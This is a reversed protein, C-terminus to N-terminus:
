RWNKSIEEIEDIKFNNTKIVVKIVYGYGSAYTSFTGMTWPIDYGTATKINDTGCGTGDVNFKKSFIESDFLENINLWATVSPFKLYIDFDVGILGTTTIRLTGNSNPKGEAWIRRFYEQNNTKNASYDVDINYTNFSNQAKILAGMYQQADNAQLLTNSDWSGYGNNVSIINDMDVATKKIRYEEDIFTEKLRTSNGTNPNTDILLKITQSIETGWGTVVKGSKANLKVNDVISNPAIYEIIHNTLTFVDNWAPVTESKLNSNTHNWELLGANSGNMTLSIPKDWYTYDFINTAMLNLSFKINNNYYPIGSVYKTNGSLLTFDMIQTTPLTNSPDYFIELPNTKFIPLNTEDGDSSVSIIGRHEVHFSHKGPTVNLDVTGTGRQWKKFDNYREVTNITLAGSSSKYKAKNPNIEVNVIEGLFNTTPQIIAPDFGQMVGFYDRGKENFLEYLNLGNDADQGDFIVKIVGQDARGFQQQQVGKVVIGTTPLSAEISDVDVIYNIFDGPQVDFLDFSEVTGILKSVRGSKIPQKLNLNGRLFTAESPALDKLAENVDDMADAIKTQETFDFLGDPWYEGDKTPGLADAGVIRIEWEEPQVPLGTSKDLKLFVGQLKGISNNFWIRGLKWEERPPIESLNEPVLNKIQANPSLKLNQKLIFDSAM